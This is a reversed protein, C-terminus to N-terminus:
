PDLAHTLAFPPKGHIGWGKPAGSRILSGSLSRNWGTRSTLPPTSATGVKVAHNKAEIRTWDKCTAGERSGSRTPLALVEALCRRSKPSSLRTQGASGCPTAWHRSRLLTARGLNRRRAELNMSLSCGQAKACADPGHVSPDLDHTLDLALVGRKARREAYVAAARAQPPPPPPRPPL